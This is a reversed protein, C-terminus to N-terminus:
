VESNYHQRCTEGELQDPPHILIFHETGSASLFYLVFSSITSVSIFVKVTGVPRSSRLSNGGWGVIVGDKCLVLLSIPFDTKPSILFIIGLTILVIRSRIQHTLLSIALKLMALLIQHLFHDM